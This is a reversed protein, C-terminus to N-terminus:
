PLSIRDEKKKLFLQDREKLLSIKKRSDSTFGCNKIRDIEGHFSNKSV